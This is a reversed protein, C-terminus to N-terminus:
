QRRNRLYGVVELHGNEAARQLTAPTERCTGSELLYKVVELKGAAAAEELARPAVIEGLGLNALWAVVALHGTRAARTLALTNGVCRTKTFLVKALALHGVEAAKLLSAFEPQSWRKGWVDPPYLELTDRLDRPLAAYGARNLAAYGVQNVLGDSDLWSSLLQALLQADRFFEVARARAVPLTRLYGVVELRGNEAARQLTAPTALCTGSELLYKVVELKGAAAAEELAAPPVDCYHSLQALWAVVAVHGREAARTVVLPTARCCWRKVLFRAVELHGGEAAKLLSVSRARRWREEWVKRPYMSDLHYLVRAVAKLDGHVSARLLEHVLQKDDSATWLSRQPRELREASWFTHLLFDAVADNGHDWAALVAGITPEGRQCLYRVVELHGSRAAAKVGKKINRRPPFIADPTAPETVAVLYKVVELQGNSAATKLLSDTHHYAYLLPGHDRLVGVWGFACAQAM